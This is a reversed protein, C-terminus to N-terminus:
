RTLPASLRARLRRLLDLPLAPDDVVAFCTHRLAGERAWNGITARRRAVRAAALATIAQLESPSPAFSSFAADAAAPLAPLELWAGRSDLRLTVPGRIALRELVREAAVVVVEGELGLLGPTPLLPLKTTPKPETKAARTELQRTEPQRVLEALLRARESRPGEIARLSGCSTGPMVAVVWPIEARDDVFVPPKAATAGPLAATLLTSGLLLAPLGIM